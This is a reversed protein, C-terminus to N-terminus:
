LMVDSSVHAVTSHLFPSSTVCLHPSFLEQSSRAHMHHIEQSKIIISRVQNLSFLDPWSHSVAYQIQLLMNSKRLYLQDM